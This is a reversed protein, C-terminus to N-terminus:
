LVLQGIEQDSFDVRQSLIARIQSDSFRWSFDSAEGWYESIEAATELSLVTAMQSLRAFKDRVSRQSAEALSSVMQRVQRDLQLGGLQNFRKLHLCAELHEM